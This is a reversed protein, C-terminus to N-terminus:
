LKIVGLKVLEFFCDATALVDGLADHAKINFHGFLKTHLEELKPWKFKPLNCYKASSLMTCVKRPKNACSLGLRNMEAAVIRLDFNMNHAVIVDAKEIDECLLKLVGKIALGENRCREDNMNNEMFFPEVPITWGDPFILTSQTGQRTPKDGLHFKAWAIQTIRPFKEFDKPSANFDAIKGNTETDFVLINM